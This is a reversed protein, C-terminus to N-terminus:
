AGLPRVEPLDYNGGQVAPFFGTYYILTSGEATNAIRM